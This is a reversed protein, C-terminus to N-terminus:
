APCISKSSDLEGFFNCVLSCILIIVSQMHKVNRLNWYWGQFLFIIVRIKGTLVYIMPSTLCSNLKCCESCPISTSVKTLQSCTQAILCAKQPMQTMTEISVLQTVEVLDTVERFKVKKTKVLSFVVVLEICKFCCEFCKACHRAWLLCETFRVQILFSFFLSIITCTSKLLNAWHTWPSIKLYNSCEVWHGINFFTFSPLVELPFHRTVPVTCHIINFDIHDM